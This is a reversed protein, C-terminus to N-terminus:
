RKLIFCDQGRKKLTACLSSAARKDAFSGVHVRYFIGRAGLDARMIEGSLDGLLDRYERQLRMLRKRAQDKNPLSAMQVVYDNLLARKKPAAIRPVLSPSSPSSPPSFDSFDEEPLDFEGFDFEASDPDASDPDASDPDASDPDASLTIEPTLYDDPIDQETMADPLDIGPSAQVPAAQDSFTIEPAAREPAAQEPVAQEPVAQEPAAQDSFTIEPVAQEPPDLVPLSEVSEEPVRYYLTSLALLMLVAGVVVGGRYRWRHRMARPPQLPLPRSDFPSRTESM